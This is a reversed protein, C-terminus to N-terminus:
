ENDPFNNKINNLYYKTYADALPKQFAKFGMFRLVPFMEGFFATGCYRRYAGGAKKLDNLNQLAYKAREYYENQQAKFVQGYESNYFEKLVEMDREQVTNAEARIKVLEDYNLFKGGCHYCEDIQVEHKASTYHKVMTNGCAPCIITSNYDHKKFNQGEFLKVLPTIDEHPEDVKEYERNDFFLGGCEMCVDININSNTLYVKKMTKDCVPCNIDLSDNDSLM